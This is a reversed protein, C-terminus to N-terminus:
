GGSLNEMKYKELKGIQTQVLSKSNEISTLVSQLRQGIEPTLPHGGLLGQIAQSRKRVAEHVEGYRDTITNCDRSIKNIQERVHELAM